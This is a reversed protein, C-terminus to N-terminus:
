RKEGAGTPGESLTIHLLERTGDSVRVRDAIVFGLVCIIGKGDVLLGVRGREARPVKADIFFDKLKRTGPAGLPKFRDGKRRNRVSLKGEIAAYDMYAEHAETQPAAGSMTLAPMRECQVVVGTDPLTVTGPVSFALEWDSATEIPSQVRFALADMQLEAICKDPLTVKAGVHSDDLLEEVAAVHKSSLGPENGTVDAVARRIVMGRLFQPLRELAGANLAIASEGRSLLLGAFAKDLEGDAWAETQSLLHAARCINEVARPNFDRELIPLVEARMRNRAFERDLNTQDLRYRVGRDELFQMIEDRRVSLLPRIIRGRVPLMGRLGSLGAGRVLQLLVTEAQDDASHGLAIFDAGIRDAVDEVFAHRVQRAADELSSNGGARQIARVDRAEVTAPISLTAALETVFAADAKSEEGRLQHDLHAIHLQLAFRGTLGSLATLLAVSDAGGSVGVVVTAERIEHEGLFSAVEDILRNVNAPSPSEM